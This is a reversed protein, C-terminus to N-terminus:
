GPSSEGQYPLKEVYQKWSEWRDGFQPEISTDALCVLGTGQGPVPWARLIRCPFVISAIQFQQYPLTIIAENFRLNRSGDISKIERFKFGEPVNGIYGIDKDYIQDVFFQSIQLRFGRYRKACIDEISAPLQLTSDPGRLELQCNKEAGCFLKRQPRRERSHLRHMLSLMFRAILPEGKMKDLEAAIEDFIIQVQADRPGKYEALQLIAARWKSLGQSPPM